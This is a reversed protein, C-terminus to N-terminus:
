SIVTQQLPITIKICFTDNERMVAFEGGLLWLMQEINHLGIGRSQPICGAAETNQGTGESSNRVANVFRLTIHDEYLDKTIRVPKSSDAYKEINSQINEAIRLLNDETATVASRSKKNEASDTEADAEYLVHFGQEQLEEAVSRVLIRDLKESDLPAPDPNTMSKSDSEVGTSDAMSQKLLNDAIVNIRDAKEDIKKLYEQLQEKEDYKGYRVAEAYIKLTALPTRIDHSLGTILEKKGREMRASTEMQQVFSRRMQELSEALDSLEDNGHIGVPYDLSGGELIDIDDRLQRIYRLKKGIGLLVIIMFLVFSLIFDATLLYNYIKGAYSSYVFVDLDEDATKLKYWREPYSDDITLGGGSIYPSAYVFKRGDYIEYVFEPNNRSWDNMRKLDEPDNINETEINLKTIQDQLMQVYRTDETNICDSQDLYRGIANDAAAYIMMFLAGAALLAAFILITLQKNITLRIKTKQM